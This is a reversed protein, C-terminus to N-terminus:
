QSDHVNKHKHTIVHRQQGVRQYCTSFHIEKKKMAQLCAFVPFSSRMVQNM